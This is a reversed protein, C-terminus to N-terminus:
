DVVFRSHADLYGSEARLPNEPDPLWRRKSDADTVILRYAHEGNPLLVVAHWWGADTRALPLSDAQWRNFDGALFVAADLPAYLGFYVAREGQAGTGKDLKLLPVRARQVQDHLEDERLVVGSRPYASLPGGACRLAAAVALTPQILGAGAADAPLHPLALASESLIERVSEPTLNPNAQMMQTVVGSVIAASVSTGDVHQYNPHVWKHANMRRRVAQWVEGMWEETAEEEDIPEDGHLVRQWHQLLADTRTDSGRLTRRLRGIAHMERLVPSVPLIPSAVYRGPALIEPKRQPGHQGQVVAYNHHYLLLEEVSDARATDILRNQDDAGGVTIVSPTQAPALLRRRPQNGAAAVVVVGRECLAEAAKCVPNLWWEQALDGGISVNVVRVGHREWNRNELLWDFGRLIDAEPISGDGRGIKIPLMCAEYAPGRYRGNSMAGNGAAIATTMQGHWAVGEGDWLSEEGLGSRVRNGSLDVYAAFRPSMPELLSRWERVSLRELAVNERLSGECLDPHPYYGSDLFALTVGRGSFNSPFPVREALGLVTEEEPHYYPFTTHPETRDHLSFASRARAFAQAAAQACAPCLGDDIRWHPNRRAIWRQIPPRLEVACALLWADSEQGCLPCRSM